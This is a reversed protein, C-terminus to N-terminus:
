TDQCTEPPPQRAIVRRYAALPRRTPLYERQQRPTRIAGPHPASHEPQHCVVPPVGGRGGGGDSAGRGASLAVGPDSVARIACTFLRSLRCTPPSSDVSEDASCLDSDRQHKAQSPNFTTLDSALIIFFFSLSNPRKIGYTVHLIHFLSVWYTTSLFCSMNPM